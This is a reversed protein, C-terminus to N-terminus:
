VITQQIYNCHYWYSFIYRRQIPLLLFTWCVMWTWNPAEVCVLRIWPCPFPPCLLMSSRRCNALFIHIAWLILHNLELSIYLKNYSSYTPFSKFSAWTVLKFSSSAAWSRGTKVLKFHYYYLHEVYLEHGTLLELASRRWESVHVLLVLFCM